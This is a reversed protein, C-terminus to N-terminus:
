SSSFVLPTFTGHGVSMVRDNYHHQKESENIKYAQSFTLGSYRRAFPNFVRVDFLPRQGTTWVGRAGIDLRGKLSKNATKPILTKGSLNCLNPEVCVDKPAM